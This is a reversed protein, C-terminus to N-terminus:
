PSKLVKLGTRADLERALVAGALEVVAVEAMPSVVCGELLHGGYARGESDCVCIHAHVVTEGEPGVSINGMCSAIELPGEVEIVKYEGGGLFYGLRAERLAGICMLLGSKVGEAGVHERMAKLLDSGEDLRFVLIRGARGSAVRM